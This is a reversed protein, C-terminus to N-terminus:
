NVDAEGGLVPPKPPPPLGKAARSKCAEVYAVRLVNRLSEADKKLAFVADMAAVVHQRKLKISQDGKAIKFAEAM